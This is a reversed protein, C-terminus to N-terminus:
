LILECLEDGLERVSQLPELSEFSRLELQNGPFISQGTRMAERMAAANVSGDAASVLAANHDSFSHSYSQLKDIAAAEDGLWSHHFGAFGDLLPIESDLKGWEGLKRLRDSTRAMARFYAGTMAFVRYAYDPPSGPWIEHWNTSYLNLYFLTHHLRISVAGHKTAADVLEDARRADVIEDVDSLILIDQDEIRGLLEHVFDRQMAENQRARKKKRFFPPYRSFGWRYPPEFLTSGPFVHPKLFHDAGPLARARPGGRFTLDSECIHLEDVWRASERQKIALAAHENHFMCYEFIKM